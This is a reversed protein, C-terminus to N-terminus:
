DDVLEADTAPSRRRLQLSRYDSLLRSRRSQNGEIMMELVCLWTTEDSWGETAAALRDLMLQRLVVQAQELNDLPRCIWDESPSRESLDILQDRVFDRIESLGPLHSADGKQLAIVRVRLRRNEWELAVLDNAVVRQYATQPALDLLLAERFAEYELPDDGEMLIPKSQLDCFDTQVEQEKVKRATKM